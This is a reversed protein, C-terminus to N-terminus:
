KRTGIKLPDSLPAKEGQTNHLQRSSEQSLGATAEAGPCLQGGQCSDLPNRIRSKQSPRCLKCCASLPKGPLHKTLPTFDRQAVQKVKIACLLQLTHTHPATPAGPTCAARTGRGHHTIPRDRKHWTCCINDGQMQPWPQRIGCQQAPSRIVWLWPKALATNKHYDVDAESPHSHERACPMPGDSVTLLGAM